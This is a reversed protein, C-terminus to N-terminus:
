LVVSHIAVESFLIGGFKRKLIICSIEFCGVPFLMPTMLSIVTFSSTFNGPLIKCQTKQQSLKHAFRIGGCNNEHVNIITKATFLQM